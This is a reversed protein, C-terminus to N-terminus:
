TFTAHIFCLCPHFSCVANVWAELQSIILSLPSHCVPMCCHRVACVSRSAPFPPSRRAVVDRGAVGATGRVFPLGGGGSFSDGQSVRGERWEGAGEGFRFRGWVIGRSLSVAHLTKRSPKNEHFLDGGLLVLDAKHHRALSLVEELAAFSDRGRVPDRELYGVHNDTAILVRLISDDEEGEGAGTTGAAADDDDDDDMAGDTARDGDAADSPGGGGDGDDRVGGERRAADDDDSSPGDDPPPAAARRRGRPM